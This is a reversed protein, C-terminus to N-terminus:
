SRRERQLREVHQAVTHDELDDPLGDADEAELGAAELAERRAEVYEGREFRPEPEGRRRAQVVRLVEDESLENEDKWREIKQAQTM